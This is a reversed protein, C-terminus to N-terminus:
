DLGATNGAHLDLVVLEYVGVMRFVGCVELEAVGKVDDTDVPEAVIIVLSGEAGHAVEGHLLLIHLQKGGVLAKGFRLRVESIGPVTIPLFPEFILRPRAQEFVAHVVEIQDEGIVRVEM